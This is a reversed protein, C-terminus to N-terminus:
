DGLDGVAYRDNGLSSRRDPGPTRPGLLRRIPPAVPRCHLPVPPPDGPSRHEPGQGARADGDQSCSVFRLRRDPNLPAVRPGAVPVPTRDARMLQERRIRPDVQQLGVDYEVVDHPLQPHVYPRIRPVALDEGREIDVFLETGAQITEQDVAAAPTKPELSLM